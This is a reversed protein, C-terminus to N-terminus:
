NGCLPTHANSRDPETRAPFRAQYSARRSCGRPQVVASSGHAVGKLEADGRGSRAEAGGLGRDPEGLDARVLEPAPDRRGPTGNRGVPTHSVARFWPTLPCNVRESRFEPTPRRSALM